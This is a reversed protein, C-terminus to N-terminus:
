MINSRQRFNELPKMDREVYFDFVRYQGILGETVQEGPETKSKMNKEVGPWEKFMHFVSQRPAKASGGRGGLILM